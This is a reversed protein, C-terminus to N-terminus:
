AKYLLFHVELLETTQRAALLIAQSAYVQKALMSVTKPINTM